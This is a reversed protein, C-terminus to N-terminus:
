SAFSIHPSQALHPNLQRVIEEAQPDALILDNTRSEHARSYLTALLTFSVDQWNLIETLEM